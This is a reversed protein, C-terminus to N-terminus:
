WLDGLRIVIIQMNFYPIYIIEQKTLDKCKFSLFLIGLTEATNANDVKCTHAHM